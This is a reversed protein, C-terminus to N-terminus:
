VVGFLTAKTLELGTPLPNPLDFKLDMTGDKKYLIRAKSVSRLGDFDWVFEGEEGIAEGGEAYRLTLLGSSRFVRHVVRVQISASVIMHTTEPTQIEFPVRTELITNIDSNPPPMKGSELLSSVAWDNFTKFAGDPLTRFRLLELNGDVLGKKSVDLTQVDMLGAPYVTQELILHERVRFENTIDGANKVERLVIGEDNAFKTAASSFGTTSVAFIKDFSFRDRRGVLQEIWAVPAAGESPRDRCEILWSVTTSGLPGTIVVDFEAVPKGEDDFERKRTEVSFGKPLLEKEFESVIEELERGSTTRQDRSSVFGM